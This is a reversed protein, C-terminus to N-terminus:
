SGCSFFSSGLAGDNINELGSMMQEMVLRLASVGRCEYFHKDYDRM